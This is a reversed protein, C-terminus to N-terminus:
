LYKNLLNFERLKRFYKEKMVRQMAAAHEPKHMDSGLFDVQETDIMKEATRRAEIGYYGALSNANIQLLVGADRLERFVNTRGFWFPYREPHALVPRYGKLQIRFLIERLNEPSNVYSVEFLLYKDGFTLLPEEELKRLFGDDLYYEAAADVEIELGAQKVAERVTELGSRIIRPTNKFHDSMIHPTTIVKRFGMEKM